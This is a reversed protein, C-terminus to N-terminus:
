GERKPLRKASGNELKFRPFAGRPRKGENAPRFNRKKTGTVWPVRELVKM